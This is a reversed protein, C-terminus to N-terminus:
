IHRDRQSQPRLRTHDEVALVTLDHTRIGSSAHIYTMYLFLGQSPGAGRGLLWTFHKYSHV